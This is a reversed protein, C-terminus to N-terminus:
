WHRWCRGHRPVERLSTPKRGAFRSALSTTSCLSTWV